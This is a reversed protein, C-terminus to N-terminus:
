STQIYIKNNRLGCFTHVTKIVITRLAAPQCVDKILTGKSATVQYKICKIKTDNRKVSKEKRRSRSFFFDPHHVDNVHNFM